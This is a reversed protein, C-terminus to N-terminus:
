TKRNIQISLSLYLSVIIMTLWSELHIWCLVMAVIFFILDMISYFLDRLLKRKEKKLKKIAISDEMVVEKEALKERTM